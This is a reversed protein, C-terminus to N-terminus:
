RNLITKKTQFFDSELSVIGTISDLGGFKSPIFIQGRGDIGSNDEIFCCNKKYMKEVAKNEAIQYVDSLDNWQEDYGMNKKIIDLNIRTTRSQGNNNVTFTVFNKEM